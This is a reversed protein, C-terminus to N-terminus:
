TNLADNADFWTASDAPNTAGGAWNGPGADPASVVVEAGEYLPLDVDVLATVSSFRDSYHAIGAVFRFQQEPRRVDV